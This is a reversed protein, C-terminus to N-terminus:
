KELMVFSRKIASTKQFAAPSIKGEVYDIVHLFTYKKYFMFNHPSRKINEM